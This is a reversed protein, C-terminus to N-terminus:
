QWNHVRNWIDPVPSWILFKLADNNDWRGEESFLPRIPIVMKLYSLFVSTSSDLNYFTFHKLQLRRVGIDLVTLM